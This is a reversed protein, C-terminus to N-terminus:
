NRPPKTTALQAARVIDIAESMRDADETFFEAGYNHAAELRDAQAQLNKRARELAYIVQDYDM